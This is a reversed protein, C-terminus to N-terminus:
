NAGATSAGAGATARPVPLPALYPQISEITRPGIGRVRSLDALDRFPGNAARDAVIRKALQEGVNPLLALEPWDASNIDIQFHIATPEALDIDILRGRLRGHWVCWAAIVFLSVAAISAVVLQDTRRLAFQPWNQPQANKPEPPTM